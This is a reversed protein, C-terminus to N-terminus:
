TGNSLIRSFHYYIQLHPSLPNKYGIDNIESVIFEQDVTSTETMALTEENIIITLKQSQFITAANEVFSGLAHHHDPLSSVITNVMDLGDQLVPTNHYTASGDHIIEHPYAKEDFTVTTM